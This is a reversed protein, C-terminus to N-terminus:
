SPFGTAVFNTISSAPDTTPATSATGSGYSAAGGVVKIEYVTNNNPSYEWVDYTDNTTSSSSYYVNTLATADSNGTYQASLLGTGNVYQGNNGNAAAEVVTQANKLDSKVNSAYAKNKQSLFAPIAVAALIGIILVVVLLEILTFGEERSLRARIKNIM